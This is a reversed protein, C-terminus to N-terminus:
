RLCCIPQRAKTDDSTLSGLVDDIPRWKPHLLGVGVVSVCAMRMGYLHSDTAHQVAYESSASLSTVKLAASDLAWKCISARHIHQTYRTIWYLSMLM